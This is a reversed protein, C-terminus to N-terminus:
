KPMARKETWLTKNPIAYNKRTPVVCGLWIPKFRLLWHSVTDGTQCDCPDTDM